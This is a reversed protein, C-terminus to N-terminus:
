GVFTAVLIDYVAHAGVVIGFGRRWYLISFVTGALLRFLFSYWTFELGVSCFLKYHAASFFLSTSLIAFVLATDRDIGVRCCLAFTGTLLVVRFLLEEYIGAGLFSLMRAVRTSSNTTELASETAINHIAVTDPNPTAEAVYCYVQALALVCLGVAFSECVMGSLVDSRWNWPKRTVHHMGFLLVCTAIPLLVYEGLGLGGLFGRLWVDAGNRMAEPGMWVVGVEYLLLLPAIFILCNLPQVSQEWYDGQSSEAKSKSTRRAMPQATEESM